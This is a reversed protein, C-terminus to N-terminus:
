ALRDGTGLRAGNLWAAAPMVARGEPQVDLLRLSGVGCAILPGEANTGTIAGPAPKSGSSPDPEVRARLVKLLRGAHASFAGPWPQFGRIRNFITPAPTGWDIRGDDKTIKRAVTACAEDQPIRVAKGAAILDIAELLMEAGIAALRPELVAATEDPGIPVERQLIMDGSDMVKAVHMITVGTVADGNAVAWQIPAAGRYRPLLSPHINICGGPALERIARPIFQGYAAVAIVDPRLDRLEKEADGIKGPTLVPMGRSSALEKVPCPSLQLHRGRPRDPQTVAAVVEHRPTEVLRALAPVAFHPTGMYVIRM